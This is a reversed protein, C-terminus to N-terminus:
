HALATKGLKQFFYQNIRIRYKREFKNMIYISFYTLLAYYSLFSTVSSLGLHSTLRSFIIKLPMQFIYMAYSADGLTVLWKAGLPSLWSANTYTVFYILVLFAFGLYGNTLAPSFGALARVTGILPYITVGAAMLLVLLMVSYRVEKACLAVCMGLLFESIHFIPSYFVFDHVFSEVNLAYSHAVHSYALMTTVWSLGTLLLIAIRGFNGSYYLDILFPFLLYFVIEVSLSWGPANADIAHTPFWSQMLLISLGESSHRAHTILMFLLLAFIYNPYIRAFRAIWFEAKQVGARHDSTYVTAMLFGSLCFFYSVAVPGHAILDGIPGTHLLWTDGRFHFAVVLSAAIFRTIKIRQLAEIM